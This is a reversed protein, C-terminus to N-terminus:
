RWARDADAIRAPGSFELRLTEGIAAIGDGRRVFLMPSAADTLSLLPGFDDVAITEVTLAPTVVVGEAVAEAM